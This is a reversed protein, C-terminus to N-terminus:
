GDPFLSRSGQARGRDREGRARVTGAEREPIQCLHPALVKLAVPESLSLDRALYVAGMGGTGLPAELVRGAEGILAFSICVLVNIPITLPARRPSIPSASSRRDTQV